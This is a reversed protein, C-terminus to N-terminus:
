PQRPSFYPLHVADGAPDIEVAVELGVALSDDQCGVIASLMQWGEEVEVIAPTYPVVFAPTPPTM